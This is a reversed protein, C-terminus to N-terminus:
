CKGGLSTQSKLIVFTGNFVVESIQGIGFYDLTNNDEEDDQSFLLQREWEKQRSQKRKKENESAILQIKELNDNILDQKNKLSRVKNKTM